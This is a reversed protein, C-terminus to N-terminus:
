PRDVSSIKPISPNDPIGILGMVKKRIAELKTKSGVDQDFTGPLKTGQLGLDAARIFATPNSADVITVVFAEGTNLRIEDMVNGTPMLKGTSAGGRDMFSLEIRAGTGPVGDIAYDSDSVVKGREVPVKAYIM